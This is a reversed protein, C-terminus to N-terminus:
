PSESSEISIVQPPTADPPYYFDVQVNETEAPSMKKSFIVPGSEGQHMVLHLFHVQPKNSVLSTVKVSGRFFVRNSPTALFYFNNKEDSCPNQVSITVLREVSSQNRLPIRLGYHVAYNGNALYATDANRVILPASQVQGTAFTHGPVTAIPFNLAKTEGVDFYKGDESNVITSLWLSGKQVGAVRGYIIPGQKGPETASKERPTVLDSQQLIQQWQQLSPAEDSNNQLSSLTAAFLPQDTEIKIFASRGNIPPILSGVPIAQNLLLAYQHPAIKIKAKLLKEDRQGRLIESMARDGPGAFVDGRDNNELAPLSIFPADPQSLHSAASLVKVTAVQAASNYVLLAVHVTQGDTEEVRNNIHHLFFNIEGNLPRNLHADPYAMNLSPFTSLLIGSGKVVEPSNSNFMEVTDLSGPLPSVVPSPKAASAQSPEQLPQASVPPILFFLILAISRVATELHPM